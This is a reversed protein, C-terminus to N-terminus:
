DARKRSAARHPAAEIDEVVLGDRSKRLLKLKQEAGDLMSRLRESLQVGVEYSRMSDNLALSGSEVSGVLEDLLKIGHEFSIGELLAPLDSSSLLEKINLSKSM